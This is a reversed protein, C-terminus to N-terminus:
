IHSYCVVRTIKYIDYTKNTTLAKKTGIKAVFSTLNLETHLSQSGVLWASCLVEFMWATLDVFFAFSTLHM